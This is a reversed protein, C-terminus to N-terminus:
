KNIIIVSAGNGKQTVKMDKSISNTGINTINQNDGKQIMQNNIEHNTAYSYDNIRNESGNQTVDVAIKKAEKILSYDNNNGNQTVTVAAVKSKIQVNAQNYSGIQAIMIESNQNKLYNANTKENKNSVTSVLSLATEKKDFVSSSYNKFEPHSEKEQSSAINVFCLLLIISVINKM